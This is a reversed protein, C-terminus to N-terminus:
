ISPSVQQKRSPVVWSCYTHLNRWLPPTFPNRRTPMGSIGIPIPAKLSPHSQHSLREQRKAKLSQHSPREQHKAKSSPHSQHSPHEQRKAKSSQHSPRDLNKSKFSQHSPSEQLKAKSSPHLPHSPHKRGEIAPMITMVAAKPRRSRAHCSSEAKSLPCSLQKRGEVAPMVPRQLPAYCAHRTQPPNNLEQQVHRALHTHRLKETATPYTQCAHSKTAPKRNLEQQTHVVPVARTAPMDRTNPTASEQQTVPM